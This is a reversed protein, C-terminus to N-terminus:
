PTVTIAIAEWDSEAPSGGDTVTFTVPQFTGSVGLAPIWTFTQTAPNFSAGAPLASLDASYTLPDGDPDSATIVFSLTSGAAVTKNGIPALVPPRNVNGVTITVDEYDSLMGVQSVQMGSLSISVVQFLQVISSHHWFTLGFLYM